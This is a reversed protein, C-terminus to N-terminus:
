KIMLSKWLYTGTKLREPAQRKEIDSTLRNKDQDRTDFKKSRKVFDYENRNTATPGVRRKEGRWALVSKGEIRLEENKGGGSKGQSDGRCCM